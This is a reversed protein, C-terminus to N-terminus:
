AVEPEGECIRMIVDLAQGVTSVGKDFAETPLDVNLKEQMIDIIELFSLSDGGLDEKFRAEPTVAESKVDMVEVAAEVLLQMVADRDLRDSM